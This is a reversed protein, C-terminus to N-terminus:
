VGEEFVVSRGLVGDDFLAAPVLATPVGGTWAGRGERGVDPKNAGVAADSALARLAVNGGGGGLTGRLTSRERSLLGVAADAPLTREIAL